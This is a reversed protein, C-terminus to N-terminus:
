AGAKCSRSCTRFSTRPMMASCSPWSSPSTRDAKGSLHKHDVPLILPLAAAIGAKSQVHFHTCVRAHMACLTKLCCPAQQTSLCAQSGKAADCKRLACHWCACLRAACRVHLAASGCFTNRRLDFCLGLKCIKARVGQVCHARRQRDTRTGNWSSLSVLLDHCTYTAFSGAIQMCRATASRM